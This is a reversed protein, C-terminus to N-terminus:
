SNASLQEPKTIHPEEQAYKRTCIYGNQIIKNWVILRQTFTLKKFFKRQSNSAIKITKIIFNYDRVLIDLKQQNIGM